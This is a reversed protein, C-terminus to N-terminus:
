GNPLVPVTSSTIYFFIENKNYSLCKILPPTKINSFTALVIINRALSSAENIVPSITCTTLKLILKM